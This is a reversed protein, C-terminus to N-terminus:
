ADEQVLEMCSLYRTPVIVTSVLRHLVVASFYDGNVRAAILATKEHLRDVTRLSKLKLDQLKKIGQGCDESELVPVWGQRSGLVVGDALLKCVIGYPLRQQDGCMVM